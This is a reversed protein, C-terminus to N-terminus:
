SEPSPNPTLQEPPPVYGGTGLELGASEAFSPLYPYLNAGPCVTFDNFDRHGALHTLDLRLALWDILQRTAAIQEATPTEKEFDGFLVVGVSGTNYTEVHTGRVNLDRGAFVQGTRGVGYHYGIDAWKRDDMHKNQIARMTGPDDGEYLAAHHVVVTRYVERLDADYIRWGEVNDTNYFGAENLAAHNPARAGWQARTTIPPRNIRKVLTVQSESGSPTTDSANTQDTIYRLSLYGLVSGLCTISGGTVALGAVGLFDRRNM